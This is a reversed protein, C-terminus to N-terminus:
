PVDRLWQWRGAADPEYLSRGGPYACGASPLAVGGAREEEPVASLDLTEGDCPGGHLIVTTM